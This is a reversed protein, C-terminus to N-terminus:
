SRTLPALAWTHRAIQGDEQSALVEVRCRSPPDGPANNALHNQAAGLSVGAWTLGGCIAARVEEDNEGIGGTFILLDLGGLAAIMAAVQKRVSYCFMEIALRADANSAAADHLARMDSGVGSIGLLGSRHDVLQELMAADFKMERALYVLVGPDLDGSRTGMVVGGTPTLGMSTDISKGNKVATVSAGNGLHAIVLRDPPKALQHMISECSLGHFGYRQIGAARFDGPLPLVCAREPMKAHFTTDFCAAQPLGPFHQQAFRIVSLAPPTHLPAFASVAELEQLVPGDILCHQRLKPGGHVIRHGIADPVSEALLKAVRVVADRQGPISIAESLLSNNQSDKAHFRGKAEGIGEAEGSILMDTRSPGVRYVGFKLSSSGSNLALVKLEPRAGAQDDRVSIMSGPELV